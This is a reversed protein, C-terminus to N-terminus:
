PHRIQESINLALFAYSTFLYMKTIFFTGKKIVGIRHINEKNESDYARDYVQLCYIYIYSTNGPNLPVSLMLRAYLAEYLSSM